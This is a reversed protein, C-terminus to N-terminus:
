AFPQGGHPQFAAAQMALEYKVPTGRAAPIDDDSIEPSNQGLLQTETMHAQEALAGLDPVGTHNGFDKSILPVAREEEFSPFSSPLLEAPIDLSAEAMGGLDCPGKDAFDESPVIPDELKARARMRAIAVALSSCAIDRCSGVNSAIRAHLFEPVTAFRVVRTRVRCTRFETACVFVIRLRYHLSLRM